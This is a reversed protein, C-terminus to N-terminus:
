KNMSSFTHVYIIGKQEQDGFFAKAEYRDIINVHQIDSASLRGLTELDSIKADIFIVDDVSSKGEQKFQEILKLLKEKDTIQRNAQYRKTYMYIIGNKFNMGYLRVAETPTLVNVYQVVNTDIKNFIAASSFSYGDIVILERRLPSRGARYAIISKFLSDKSTRQRILGAKTVLTIAGLKAKDQTKFAGGPNVYITLISDKNLYQRWTDLSSVREAVNLQVKSTDINQLLKFATKFHDEKYGKTNPITNNFVILKKHYRAGLIAKSLDPSIIQFPMSDLNLKRFRRYNKFLNGNVMVAAGKMNATDKFTVPINYVYKVKNGNITGPIWKPSLRMIRLAERNTYKDLGKTVKVNSVQGITDIVFKLMVKGQVGRLRSPVPYKISTKLYSYFLDIGGPFQAPISDKRLTDTATFEVSRNAFATTNFAILLLAILKYNM